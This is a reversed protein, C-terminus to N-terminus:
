ILRKSCFIILAGFPLKECLVQWQYHVARLWAVLSFVLRSVISLAIFCGLGYQLNCPLMMMRTTKQWSVEQYLALRDARM